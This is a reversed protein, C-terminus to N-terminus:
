RMRAIGYGVLVLLLLGLGFTLKQRQLYRKRGSTMRPLLPLGLALGSLLGGIHAANSIRVNPLAFSGVHVYQSANLGIGLFLNLGAFQLVSRRLQKLHGPAIGAEGNRPKALEKNSFLIILIGAIGFVAGSAGAEVSGFEQLVVGVAVSMLNGAVGTLLYVALTGFFGLLPEGFLGLNWLCWMNLALHLLGVHLFMATVLRWWEGQLVLDTNCAGFRLLDLPTPNRPDVGARWMALFAAVNIAILLWTAPASVITRWGRLRERGGTPMAAGAIEGVDDPRAASPSADSSPGSSSPM